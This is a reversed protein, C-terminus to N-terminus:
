QRVTGEQETGLAHGADWEEPSIADEDSIVPKVPIRKGNVVKAVLTSNKRLENWAKGKSSAAEFAAAQDPSVDGHIYHAGTNTVSEFEQADPDYKYSKLASSEVPTHGPAVSEAISGAQGPKLAPLQNRLTVGSELAKGGLGQNLLDSLKAIQNARTTVDSIAAKNGLEQVAQHVATPPLQALSKPGSDVDGTLLLGRDDMVRHLSPRVNVGPIPLETDVIEPTIQGPLSRSPSTLAPDAPPPPEYPPANAPGGTVRNPLGFSEGPIKVKPLAEGIASGIQRGAIAGMLGGEPIGSAHGLYAGTAAGAADPLKSLVTNAGRAGARVIPATSRVASEGASKFASAADGAASQVEPSGAAIPLAAGLTRGVGGAIDGSKLQEGAQDAQQGVFPVLYNLGHQLAGMYDGKDYADRAKKALEGQAEFSKIVTDLPHAFFNKAQEDSTVGLGSLFNTGLRSAASDQPAAAKPSNQAFWDGGGSSPAAAPAPANQAFWDPQAAASM